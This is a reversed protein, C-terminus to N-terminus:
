AGFLDRGKILFASVYFVPGKPFVKYYFPDVEPQQGDPRPQAAPAYQQFYSLDSLVAM